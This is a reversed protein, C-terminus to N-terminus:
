HGNPYATDRCNWYEQQEKGGPIARAPRNEEDERCVERSEKCRRNKEPCQLAYVIQSDTPVQDTHESPDTDVACHAWNAVDEIVSRNIKM